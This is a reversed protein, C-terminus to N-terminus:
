YTSPRIIRVKSAGMDLDTSVRSPARDAMLCVGLTCMMLDQCFGLTFFMLEQLFGLSLIMRLRAQASTWTQLCARHHEIRRRALSLYQGSALPLDNPRPWVRITEVQSTGIDVDTPVGSPARDAMLRVGLTCMMLDQCFGLTFFM